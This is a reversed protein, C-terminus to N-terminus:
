KWVAREETKLPKYAVYQVMRPLIGKNPSACHPLAHHWIILDGANGPVAIPKLERLAAERPDTNEPLGSIWKDIEKHFGPVCNFAGDGAGVDNLYLLGQLVFPIPLQLSVDWHLPSGMFKYTRTEPPNFSVKDMLLYIETGKYLEEYAKRIKKSNRNKDLAPHHFLNLMMGNKGEHSRYWSAPKSPDADLYEWIAVQAAACQIAPVANKVVLFGNTEWLDWDKNTLLDGAPLQLETEGPQGTCLLWDTFAEYSPQKSYLYRLTEEIGRGCQSLYYVQENWEEPIPPGNLSKKDHRAHEWFKYLSANRRLLGNEM